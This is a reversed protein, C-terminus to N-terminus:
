LSADSIPVLFSIDSEVRGDFEDVLFIIFYFHVFQFIELFFSVFRFVRFFSVCSFIFPLLFLFVISFVLFM